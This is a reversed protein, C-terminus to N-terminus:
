RSLPLAPSSLSLSLSETFSYIHPLQLLQFRPLFALMGLSSNLKTFNKKHSKKQKNTKQIHMGRDKYADTHKDQKVQSLAAHSCMTSHHPLRQVQLRTQFLATFLHPHFPPLTSHTLRIVRARRWWRRSPPEPTSRSSRKYTTLWIVTVKIQSRETKTLRTTSM